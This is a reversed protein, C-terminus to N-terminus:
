NFKIGLTKKVDLGMEKLLKIRYNHQKMLMDINSTKPDEVKKLEKRLKRQKATLVRARVGERVEDVPVARGKRWNVWPFVNIYFGSDTYNIRDKPRAIFTVCNLSTIQQIVVYPARPKPLPLKVIKVSTPIPSDGMERRRINSGTIGDRM